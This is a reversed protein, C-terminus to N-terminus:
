LDDIKPADYGEAVVAYGLKGAVTTTVEFTFSDFTSEVETLTIVPKESPTPKDPTPNDPNCGVVFVASLLLAWLLNLKRM